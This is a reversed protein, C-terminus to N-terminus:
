EVWVIVRWLVQVRMMIIAISAAVMGVSQIALSFVKADAPSIQLVKTFIPFAIAGGGESTAGAIISGFIMTVSVQWYNQIVQLSDPYTYFLWSGWVIVTLLLSVIYSCSKEKSIM